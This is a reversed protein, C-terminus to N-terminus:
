AAMVVGTNVLTEPGGSTTSPNLSVASRLRDFRKADLRKGPYGRRKKVSPPLGNSLGLKELRAAVALARLKTGPKIREAERYQGLLTAGLLSIDEPNTAAWFAEEFQRIKRQRRFPLDVRGASVAVGTVVKTADGRFHTIKHGVFGNKALEHVVKSTFHRNAKSGSFVMDDVYLTFILGHDKAIEAIRRFMESCAFFSLVPSVASGTPLASSSATTICCLETLVHAVDPSCQLRREFFDRVFRRTVNSYFNKIDIKVTPEGIAHPRANDFYSRAKTASYVYDPKEIRGILIALRKHIIALLPKPQQIARAKHPIGVLEDRRRRRTDWLRYNDPQKLLLRLDRLSVGLIAALKQKSALRYFPSSTLPYARANAM